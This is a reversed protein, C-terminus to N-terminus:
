TPWIFNTVFKKFNTVFVSRGLARHFAYIDSGGNPDYFHFPYRHSPHKEELLEEARLPDMNGTSIFILLDREHALLDLQYAYDSYVSNYGKAIPDNLSLNFLRIGHDRNM